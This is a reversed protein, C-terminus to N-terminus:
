KTPKNAEKEPRSGNAQGRGKAEERPAFRVCVGRNVRLAHEGRGVVARVRVVTDARRGKERGLASAHQKEAGM